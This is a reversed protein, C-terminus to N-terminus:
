RSGVGWRRCGKCSGSEPETLSGALVEVGCCGVYRGSLRGVVMADETVLHAIGRRRDGPAAGFRPREGPRGEARDRRHRGRRAPKHPEFAVRLLPPGPIVVALTDGNM